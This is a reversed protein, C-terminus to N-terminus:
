RNASPCGDPTIHMVGNQQNRGSAPPDGAGSRGGQADRHHPRDLPCPAMEPPLDNRDGTEVPSPEACTRLLDAKWRWGTRRELSNPGILQCEYVIGFKCYVRGDMAPGCRPGRDNVTPDSVDEARGAVPLLFTVLLILCILARRLADRRAAADAHSNPVIQDSSVLVTTSPIARRMARVKTRDSQRFTLSREVANRSADDKVSMAGDSPEDRHRQMTERGVIVGCRRARRHPASALTKAFHSTRKYPRTKSRSYSVRPNEPLCRPTMQDDAGGGTISRLRM